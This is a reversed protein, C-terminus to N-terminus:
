NHLEKGERRRRKGKGSGLWLLLLLWGDRGSPTRCQAAPAVQQAHEGRCRVCCKSKVCEPCGPQVPSNISVTPAVLHVASNVAEHVSVHASGDLTGEGAGELKSDSGANRPVKNTGVSLANALRNFTNLQLLCCNSAPAASASRRM